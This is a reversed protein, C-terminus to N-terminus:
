RSDRAAVREHLPYASWMQADHYTASLDYKDNFIIDRPYIANGPQKAPDFLGVVTGGAVALEACLYSIRDTYTAGFYDKRLPGRVRVPTGQLLLRGLAYRKGDQAHAWQALSEEKEKTLPTKVRRIHITGHFDQLRPTLPLVRCHLTDNPGAEVTAFEGDAKRFVLAAHYPGETGVMKYLFIWHAKYDNFFVLDGACPEYPVTRTVFRGDLNATHQVLYSGPKDQATARDTVCCILAVSLIAARM